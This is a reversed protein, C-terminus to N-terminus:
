YKYGIIKIPIVYNKQGSIEAVTIATDTVDFRRSYTGGMHDTIWYSGNEHVCLCNSWSNDTTSHKILIHLRPYQTRDIPITLDEIPETPSENEWLVAGNMWERQEAIADNVAKLNAQLQANVSETVPNMKENLAALYQMYLDMTPAITTTADKLSYTIKQKAVGSTKKKTGDETYGTVSISLIGESALVESPVICEDGVLLSDKTAGGNVADNSFIAKRNTFDAWADDFTVHLLVSNIDGAAIKVKKASILIQDSTNLKITTM